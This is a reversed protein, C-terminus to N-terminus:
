HLGVKIHVLAFKFVTASSGVLVCVDALFVEYHAM